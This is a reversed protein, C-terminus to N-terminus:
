RTTASRSRRTASSGRATAGARLRRADGPGAPGVDFMTGLYTSAGRASRARRRAARQPVAPLQLDDRRLGDRRRRRERPGDGSVLGVAADPRGDDATVGRESSRPRTAACARARRSTRADGARRARRVRRRRHARGEPDHRQARDLRRGRDGGARRAIPPRPRGQGLPSCPSPTPSASAGPGIPHFDTDAITANWGIVVYNGIRLELECLLVANTFYCYDGIEVVGDEGLAFQVGDMTCHAGIVLAPMRRSSSASSRAGRRLDHHRDRRQVNPRCCATRGAARADRRPAGDARRWPRRRRRRVPMRTSGRTSAARRAAARGHTGPKSSRGTSWCSSGTPAPPRHVPPPRHRDDHAREDAARARGAAAGRDRADVASTPEDLILIPADKLLARAISLRQREGGSLTAGREGVVTDYGERCGCSSTTPTPRAPRRRSRTARPARAPRLRHERRDVLPFLFPEQLVVAVQSRLSKSGCTACTTATSPSAAAGRTSSARCWASWRARAPAPPASSRWPRARAPGRPQRRAPGAPGARLRLDRGRPAPPRALRARRDARGPSRRGRAADRAGRARAPRQRRRGPHDVARVDADRAAGYLAALYALFVLIGGVTLRGDLVSSRASGCSRRPASRRDGLGILM